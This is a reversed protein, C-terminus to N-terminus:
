GIKAMAGANGTHRTSATRKSRGNKKLSYKMAQLANFINGISVSIGLRETMKGAYQELTLDPQEKVLDQLFRKDKESLKPPRGMKKRPPFLVGFQAYCQLIKNVWGLSVALEEAIEPQTAGEADKAIVRERLEKPYTM